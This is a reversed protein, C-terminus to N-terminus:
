QANFWETMCALMDDQTNTGANIPEAVAVFQEDYEYKINETILDEEHGHEWERPYSSGVLLNHLTICVPVRNIIHQM